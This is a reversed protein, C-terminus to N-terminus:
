YHGKSGNDQGFIYGNDGLKFAIFTEYSNHWTQSCTQGGVSGDPLLKRIKFEKENESNNSHLILYQNFGFSLGSAHDWYGADTGSTIQPGLSSNIEHTSYYSNTQNCYRFVYLSQNNTEGLIPGDNNNNDDKSCSIFGILLFGFLGLIMM